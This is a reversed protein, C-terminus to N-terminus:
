RSSESSDETESNTATAKQQDYYSNLHDRLEKDSFQNLGLKIRKLSPNQNIEFAKQLTILNTLTM